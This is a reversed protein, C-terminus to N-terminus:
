YFNQRCYKESRVFDRLLIGIGLVLILYFLIEGFYFFFVTVDIGSSLDLLIFLNTFINSIDKSLAYFFISDKFFISYIFILLFVVFLIRGINRKIKSRVRKNSLLGWSFTGIIIFLLIVIISSVNNFYTVFVNVSVLNMFITFGLGVEGLIYLLHDSPYKKYNTAYIFLIDEGIEYDLDPKNRNMMSSIIFILNLPILLYDSGLLMIFSIGLSAEALKDMEKSEKWKDVIKARIGFTVFIFVVLIIIPLYLGRLVELADGFRLLYLLNMCFYWVCCWTFFEFPILLRLKKIESVNYERSRLNKCLFFYYGIVLLGIYILQSISLVEKVVDNDIFIILVFLINAILGFLIKHDKNNDKSIKLEFITLIIAFIGLILNFFFFIDFSDIIVM